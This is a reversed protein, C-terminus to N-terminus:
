SVKWMVCRCLQAVPELFTRGLRTLAYEVRPPVEAHVTRTLLGDDELGRLTQTLMKQSIDPLQRRLQGYWRTGPRPRVPENGPGRARLKSHGTATEPLCVLDDLPVGECLRQFRVETPNTPTLCTL